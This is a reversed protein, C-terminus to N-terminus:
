ARTYVKSVKISLNSEFCLQGFDTFLPLRSPFSYSDLIGSVQDYSLKWRSHKELFPTLDVQPEWSPHQSDRDYLDGVNASVAPANPRKVAEDPTRNAGSQPESLKTPPENAWVPPKLAADLDECDSVLEKGSHVMVSFSDTDM